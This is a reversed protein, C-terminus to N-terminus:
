AQRDSGVRELIVQIMSERRNEGDAVRAGKRDRAVEVVPHFMSRVSLGQDAIEGMVSDVLFPADDQLIELRELGPAGEVPVLRIVPAAGKRQAGFAWFDALLAALTKTPIEPLEDPVADDAAQAIFTQAAPSDDGAAQSFASILGRQAATMKLRRNSM